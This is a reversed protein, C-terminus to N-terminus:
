LVYGEGIMDDIICYMKKWTVASVDLEDM